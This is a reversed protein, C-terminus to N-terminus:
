FIVALIVFVICTAFNGGMRTKLVEDKTATPDSKAIPTYIYSLFNPTKRSFIAQERQMEEKEIDKKISDAVDFVGLRDYKLYAVWGWLLFWAALFSFPWSLTYDQYPRIQMYLISLVLGIM